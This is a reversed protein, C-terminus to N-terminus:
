WFTPTEPASGDNTEHFCPATEAGGTLFKNLKHTTSWGSVVADSAVGPVAHTCEDPEFKKAALMFSGLCMFRLERTSPEDAEEAYSAHLTAALSHCRM